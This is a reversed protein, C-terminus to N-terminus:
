FQGQCNGTRGNGSYGNKCHCSFSGNTNVCDANVDCDDTSLSCENLDALLSFTFRDICFLEDQERSIM